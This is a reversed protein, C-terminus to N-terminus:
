SRWWRSRDVDGADPEAPSSPPPSAPNPEGDLIAQLNGALEKATRYRRVPDKHLCRRCITDVEAPLGPQFTTPPLPEYSRVQELTDLLSNGLFAPQGTVLEYFIVGLAHQDTAPGVARTDGAAQEPAMYRATGLIRGTDTLHANSDLQKALGFDTVKPTGDRHFLVNAPKLDRHVIGHEHAHHIALALTRILYAAAALPWPTGAMKSFLSGGSVLEMSFYPLGEHEGSDYVRVINPHDLRAAAQAEVRFRALDEKGAHTGALIMKLAVLRDLHVQRAQYVVGM